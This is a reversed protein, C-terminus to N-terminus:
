TYGQSRQDVGQIVFRHDVLGTFDDNLYVESALRNLVKKRVGAM